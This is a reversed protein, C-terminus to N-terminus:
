AESSLRRGDLASRIWSRRSQPMLGYNYFAVSDAGEVALRAIADGADAQSELGGTGIRVAARVRFGQRASLAGSYQRYRSGVTHSTAEYCNVVAGEFVAQIEAADLGVEWLSGPLKFLIPRLESATDACEQLEAHLSAVVGARSRMWGEFAAGEDEMLEAVDRPQATMGGPQLAEDVLERVSRRVRGLEIGASSASASCHPCFCLSLLFGALRTVEVSSIEIEFPPEWPLYAASELDIACGPYQHSLDAVLSRLYHRVDPNAPCLCNVMREGYVSEQCCDLNARGLADNHLCVTWLSLSVEAREAAKRTLALIEGQRATDAVPPVLRGYRAPEPRFYAAGASPFHVRRAVNGATVVRGGHYVSAVSLETLGLEVIEDVVADVGNDALDWPYVWISAPLSM